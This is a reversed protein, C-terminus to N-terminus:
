ESEKLTNFLGVYLKGCFGIITFVTYQRKNHKAIEADSFEYEYTEGLEDPSIPPFVM